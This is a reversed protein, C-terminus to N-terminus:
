VKKKAGNQKEIFKIFKRVEKTIIRMPIMVDFHGLEKGEVLKRKKHHFLRRAFRDFENREAKTM